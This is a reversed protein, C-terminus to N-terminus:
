VLMAIYKAASAVKEAGEGVGTKSIVHKALLIFLLNIIGFCNIMVLIKFNEFLPIEILMSCALIIITALFNIFIFLGLMNLILKGYSRLPPIFYCFIGIPVFLVGLAVVIYRMVLFLMGISLVIVYLFVFLFELGINILNDATIMFFQPDVLSLVSSSMASGLEIVLQYLYFSSQILVMMIIVNKLWEKAMERRVVNHGSFLFQMGAYILLLGYFMSLCYVVIAWIGHFLDISPQAQLLSTFIDLLPALPANLLNLVFEYTKEPICSALNTLGCEGEAHVTPIMFLLITIPVLVKGWYKRIGHYIMIMVFIFVAIKVLLYMNSTFGSQEFPQVELEHYDEICETTTTQFLNTTQISCSEPEGVYITNNSYRLNQPITQDTPNAELELFYYPKHSFNANFILNNQTLNAGSFDLFTNTLNNNELIGKHTGLYETIFTFNSVQPNQYEIISVEDIIELNDNLYSTGTYDCDYCYRVCHGDVRRCCYKDWNYTKKKISTQINVKAKLSDYNYISSFFTKENGLSQSNVYWIISQSQSQLYYNIKCIAGDRKNSNYYNEPIDLEYDYEARAEIQPPVIYSNNYKISPSISLIELWANKIHDTNHIETDEPPDEVGIADNYEKIFNHGPYSTNTYILNAILNEDIENLYDCNEDEILSCDFANSSSVLILLFFLFILRKM